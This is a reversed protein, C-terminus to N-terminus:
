FFTLYESILGDMEERLSMGAALADLEEIPDYGAQIGKEM